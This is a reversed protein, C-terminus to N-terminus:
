RRALEQTRAAHLRKDWSVVRAPAAGRKNTLSCTSSFSFRFPPLQNRRSPVAPSHRDKSFGFDILTGQNRQSDWLMNDRKVDSHVIGLSHCYELAQSARVAM